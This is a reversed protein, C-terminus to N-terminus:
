KTKSFSSNVRTRHQLGVQPPVGLKLMVAHLSIISNHLEYVSEVPFSAFSTDLTKVSEDMVGRWVSDNEYFFQHLTHLSWLLRDDAEKQSVDYKIKSCQDLKCVDLLFVNLKSLNAEIFQNAPLMYQEKSFPVNNVTQQLIKGILILSRLANRQPANPVIKYFQPSTLAPCIFRLFFLGSVGTVAVDNTQDLFDKQRIQEVLHCCLKRIPYPIEDVMSIMTNVYKQAYDLIKSLNSNASQDKGVRSPDAELNEDKNCIELTLPGLVKKLYELGYINMYQSVLKTAASNSRLLQQTRECSKVQIRIAHKCIEYSLDLDQVLASMSSKTKSQALRTMWMAARWIKDELNVLKQNDFLAIFMEPSLDVLFRSFPTYYDLSTITSLYKITGSESSTFQVKIKVRGPNVDKNKPDHLDLTLDHLKEDLFDVLPLNVVGIFTDKSINNNDFVSITFQERTADNVSFSFRENHYVPNCNKKIVATSREEDEDRLKITVYPDSTGGADKALLDHCSVVEINIVNIDKHEHPVHVSHSRPSPISDTRPSLGINNVIRSTKREIKSKLSDDSLMSPLSSLRDSSTSHSLLSSSSRKKKDASEEEQLKKAKKKQKLVKEVDVGMNTQIWSKM